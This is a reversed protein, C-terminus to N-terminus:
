APTVTEVVRVTVGGTASLPSESLGVVTVPPVLEVPITVREAGAGAPPITTARESLLPAVVRGAVTVTLAPLLEAWNVIAVVATEAETVSVM